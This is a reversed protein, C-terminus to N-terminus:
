KNQLEMALAYLSKKNQDLLKAAIAAAKAPPLETLLHKLLTRPELPPAESQAAAGAVLVVFEGRLQDAHNEFYQQLDVVSARTITEFHKTLERAVTAVREAGFAAALEQLFLPMRHVAEYFIMTRTETALQTLRKQRRAPRAPLFGEFVFREASLGSVSLAAIAACAGPVPVLKVGCAHAQQILEQGPDSILPTGADSVLAVQKGQLCQQLLAGAKDAENHEHLALMPNDIAYHTLLKRTHRTDEAAILDVERLVTLARASIDALNGMPTAVVYLAGPQKETM